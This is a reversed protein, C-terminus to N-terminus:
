DPLATQVNSRLLERKTASRVQQMGTFNYSFFTVPVEQIVGNSQYPQLLVGAFATKSTNTEIHWPSNPNPHYLKPDKALTEKALLFVKNCEKTWEFKTNKKLLRQIPQM